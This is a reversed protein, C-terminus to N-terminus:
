RDPEHLPDAAMILDEVSHPVTLITRSAMTRSTSETFVWQSARMLSVTASGLLHSGGELRRRVSPAVDEPLWDEM